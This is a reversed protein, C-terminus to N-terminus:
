KSNLAQDLISQLYNTLKQPESSRVVQANQNLWVTRLYVVGDKCNLMFVTETEGERMTADEKHIAESIAENIRPLFKNSITPLYPRVMNLLLDSTM